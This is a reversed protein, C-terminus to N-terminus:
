GTERIAEIDVVQEREVEIRHLVFWVAPHFWLVARLVEESVAFLWDRRRVHALEHAIVSNREEDSMAVFSEPLIVVPRLWGFTVPTTLEASFLFEAEPWHEAMPRARRRYLAIRVMGLALRALFLLAGLVLVGALIEAWPVPRAVPATPTNWARATGLTISVADEVPTEWRGFFPATLALLLTMQWHFLRVRPDAKHLLRALLAAALVIAAFQASYLLLNELYYIM